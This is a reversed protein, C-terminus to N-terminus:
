NLSQKVCAHRYQPGRSSSLQQGSLLTHWPAAGPLSVAKKDTQGAIREIPASAPDAGGGYRLLGAAAAM